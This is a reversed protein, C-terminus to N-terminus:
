RKLFLKLSQFGRNRVGDLKTGVAYTVLLQLFLTTLVLIITYMGSVCTSLAGEIGRTVEEASICSHHGADEAGTDRPRRDPGCGRLRRTPPSPGGAGMESEKRLLEREGEAPALGQLEVYEIGEGSVPASARWGATQLCRRADERVAGQLGLKLPVDAQLCPVCHPPPAPIAPNLSHSLCRYTSRCLSRCVSGPGNGRFAGLAGGSIRFFTVAGANPMEMACLWAWPSPFFHSPAPASHTHM